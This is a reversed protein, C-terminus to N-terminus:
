RRRYRLLAYIYVPLTFVVAGEAIARLAIFYFGAFGFTPPVLSWALVAPVVYWSLFLYGIVAGSAFLV